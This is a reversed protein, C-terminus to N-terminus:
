KVLRLYYQPISFLCIARVLHFDIMFDSESIDRHAPVHYTVTKNVKNFTIKENFHSGQESIYM